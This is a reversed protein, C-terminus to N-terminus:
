LLREYSAPYGQLARAPYRLPYSQSFLLSVRLCRWASVYKYLEGANTIKLESHLLKVAESSVDQTVADVNETIFNLFNSVILAACLLLIFFFLVANPCASTCRAM